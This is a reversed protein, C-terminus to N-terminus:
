AGAAKRRRWAWWLVLGELVAAGAMWGPVQLWQGTSTPRDLYLLYWTSVARVAGEEQNQGDWASFAIPIFSEPELQIDQGADQTVLSRKLVLRWQGDLYVGGGVLAQSDPEQPEATGLGTANLEELAGTDARWRWLNAPRGPEGELFYPRASGVATQAPFQVAVGDVATDGDVVRNESRDDWSLLLAVDEDNHLARVTIADLTPTFNRPAQSIQGVLPFFFTEMQDWRPDDPTSPLPGEVLDATLVAKVDPEGPPSLSRVFNALHWSEEGTMLGEYSPMPTGMLGTLFTRAIDERTHGGRFNWSKTLNAPQIAFGYDDELDLASPGDGRGAQGHCKFCELPGFYLERGKAISEANSSIPSDLALPEVADGRGFRRSFTKIYAIVDRREQGSLAGSWGPMATGPMGAGITRELDEDTPLQGSGTTRVKYLARRFDRPRPYLLEAAPGNGDGELGHCGACRAEYVPRGAEAQAPPAADVTSRAGSGMRLPAMWAVAILLALGLGVLIFRPRRVLM